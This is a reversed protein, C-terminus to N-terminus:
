AKEKNNKVKEWEDEPGCCRTSGEQEVGLNELIRNLANKLQLIESESMGSVLVDEMQRMDNEAQEQMNRARETLVLKKLRADHEVPLREVLGKREMVSLMNSATARSIKFEKEIDRQYIDEGDRDKIFRMMWCQMATMDGENVKRKAEMTKHIQNHILRIKFGITDKRRMQEAEKEREVAKNQSIMLYLFQKKKIM